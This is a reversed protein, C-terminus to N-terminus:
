ILLTLCYYYVESNITNNDDKKNSKNNNGDNYININISNMSIPYSKNIAMNSM